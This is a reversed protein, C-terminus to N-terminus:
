RSRVPNLWFGLWILLAYYLVAFIFPFNFIELSAYPFKALGEVVWIEYSLFLWVVSAAIKALPMFVFGLAASIFGFFMTLPIAPLILVNALPSILSLRDFNYILVPLVAAQASITTLFIEKIKEFARKAFPTSKEEMEQKMFIRALIPQFYILGLAALFSLQFGADWRLLKPNFWLMAAAAFVLANTVQYIRGEKSALLVLSGMIAARVVSAQAGTLATFFLITLLTLWFIMPRSLRLFGLFAALVFAIITINYGSIAIIHTVGATNFAEMLDPPIAQRSGILLASLFSVQPEPLIQAIVEEFKNKFSLIYRYYIKGNGFSIQNIYKPYAIVSFIDDKALFARYDFDDFKPPTKLKGVIEIEDGYQYRPYKRATVIIRGGVGAQAPLNTEANGALKIKSARVEYKVAAPGAEPENDIIGIISAEGLDNYSSIPIEPSLNEPKSLFDQRWFAVAAVIVCFGLLVIKKNKWFVSILFIGLILIGGLFPPSIKILSSLGIGVIFSFCLLLFIKAKSM